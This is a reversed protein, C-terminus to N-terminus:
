CLNIVQLWTGSESIGNLRNWRDTVIKVKNSSYDTSEIVIETHQSDYPYNAINTEFTARVRFIRTYIVTGDHKVKVLCIPDFM